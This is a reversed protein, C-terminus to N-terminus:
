NFVYTLGVQYNFLAYDIPILKENETKSIPVTVWSISNGIGSCMRLLLHKNLSANFGIGLNLQVFKSKTAGNEKFLIAQKYVTDTGDAIMTYFKNSLTMTGGLAEMYLFLSFSSNIRMLREYSISPHLYDHWYTPLGNNRNVDNTISFRDTLPSVHTSFGFNWVHKRNAIGYSIRVSKGMVYNSIPSVRIQDQASAAFSSILFLSSVLLKIM